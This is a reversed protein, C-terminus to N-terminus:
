GSNGGCGGRVAASGHVRGALEGLVSLAALVLLAVGVLDVSHDCGAAVLEGTSLLALLSKGPLSSHIRLSATSM